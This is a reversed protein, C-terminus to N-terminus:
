KQVFVWVEFDPFAVLMKDPADEPTPDMVVYDIDKPVTAKIDFTIKGEENTSQHWVHAHCAENGEVHGWTHSSCSTEGIHGNEIYMAENTSIGLDEYEMLGGLEIRKWRGDAFTEFLPFSYGKVLYKDKDNLEDDEVEPKTFYKIVAGEVQVLYVGMPTATPLFVESPTVSPTPDKEDDDFCFLGECDNEKTPEPTQTIEVIETIIVIGTDVEKENNRDIAEQKEEDGRLSFLCASSALFIAFVALLIGIKRITFKM